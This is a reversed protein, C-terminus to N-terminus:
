NVKYLWGSNAGEGSEVYDEVGSVYDDDVTVDLGTNLLASLPTMDATLLMQNRSYLTEDPTKVTIYIYNDDDGGSVAILTVTIPVPSNAAAQEDTVTFSGGKTVYGSKSVSYNYSGAVLDYYGAPSATQAEFTDGEDGSIVKEVTVSSDAPSVSIQVVAGSVPTAAAPRKEGASFDFALYPTATDYKDIASLALLAQQTALENYSNGWSGSYIFGSNNGTTFMMLGDANDEGEQYLGVSALAIMAMATSNANGVDGSAGSFTGDTNRLALLADRAEALEATYTDSSAMALAIVAASTVDTEYGYGWPDPWTGSEQQHSALLGTLTTITDAYTDGAHLLAIIAYAMDSDSVNSFDKAALLAYADLSTGLADTLEAPDYGMANLAICQLALSGVGLTPIRAITDDIYNQQQGSTYSGGLAYIPLVSWYDNKGTIQASAATKLAALDIDDTTRLNITYDAAWEDVVVLLANFSDDLPIEDNLNYVTSGVPAYSASDYPYIRVSTYDEDPIDTVTLSTAGSPMTLYLTDSYDGSVYSLLGTSFGFGSNAANSSSWSLSYASVSGSGDSYVMRVTDGDQLAIYDLGVNPVGGNVAGIWGAYDGAAYDGSALGAISSIFGHNVIFAKEADALAAEVADLASSGESLVLSVPEDGLLSGSWPAGDETSKTLNEVSITVTITDPPAEAAAQVPLLSFLMMLSLLLALSRKKM